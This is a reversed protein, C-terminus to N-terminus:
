GAAAERCHGHQQLFARVHTVLLSRDETAMAASGGCAECEVTAVDSSVRIRMPTLM